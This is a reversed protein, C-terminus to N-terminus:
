RLRLGVYHIRNSPQQRCYQLDCCQLFVAQSMGVQNLSELHDSFAGYLAMATCREKTDKICIQKLVKDFLKLDEDTMLDGRQHDSRCSKVGRCCFITRRYKSRSTNRSVVSVSESDDQQQQSAVEDADQPSEMRVTSIPASCSEVQAQDEDTEIHNSASAPRSTESALRQLRVELEAAVRSEFRKAEADKRRKRAEVKLKHSRVEGRTNGFCHVDVFSTARKRFRGSRESKVM